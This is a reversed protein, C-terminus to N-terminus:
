YHKRRPASVAPRTLIRSARNRGSHPRRLGSSPRKRRGSNGYAMALFYGHGAALSFDITGPTTREPHFQSCAQELDRAARRYDGVRYRALSLTGRVEASDASLVM